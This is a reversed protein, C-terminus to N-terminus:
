GVQLGADGVREGEGVSFDIGDVARVTEYRRRFVSRLAAALGPPRRHVQYHKTLGQVTIVPRLYQLRARRPAFPEPRAAGRGRGGRPRGNPSESQGGPRRAARHLM